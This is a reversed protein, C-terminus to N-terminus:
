LSHRPENHVGGKVDTIGAEPHKVVASTNPEAGRRVYAGALAAGYFLILMRSDTVSFSKLHALVMYLYSLTIFWGMESRGILKFCRLFGYSIMVLLLVTNVLGSEVLTELLMNHSYEAGLVIESSSIGSGLIANRFGASVSSEILDLRGAISEDGSGFTTMRHMTYAFYSSVDHTLAYYAAGGALVVAAILVLVGRKGADQGQKLFAPVAFIALILLYIISFRSGSVSTIFALYAILLLGILNLRARSFIFISLIVTYVTIDLYSVRFIANSYDVFIHYKFDLRILWYLLYVSFLLFAIGVYWMLAPLADRRVIIKANYYFLPMIALLLFKTRYGDAVTYLATSLYIAVFMLLFLDHPELLGRNPKKILLLPVILGLGYVAWIVDQLYLTGLGKRFLPLILVGTFFILGIHERIRLPRQVPSTPDFM